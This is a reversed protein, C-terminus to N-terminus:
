DLYAQLLKLVFDLSEASGFDPIIRNYKYDHRQRIIKNAKIDNLGIFKLCFERFVVHVKDSQLDYGKGLFYIYMYRIALNYRSLYDKKMKLKVLSRREQILRAETNECNFLFGHRLLDHIFKDSQIKNM